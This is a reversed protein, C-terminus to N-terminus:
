KWLNMDSLVSMTIAAAMKGSAEKEGQINTAFFCTHGNAETFGIFWGNVDRGETRGTGTKGYFTQGESSFLCISKKVADVHEPAFDLRNQYLNKLLEVQEVPSIKLSSQLWCTSFDFHIEENGYGIQHIYRKVASRGMQEAMNQFYWNVSAGMASYLDQDANWADFPHPEKDWAMFSNEPTIIGESLGFLASYIKYTSNPSTRRTAHEMDYINWVDANLDYLVFSGKYGHFYSSLDVTSIVESSVDWHYRNQEAACTSLLPTFSLLLVSILCFSLSGKTIKRATPKQYSAIQRIRKQMQRMPGSIGVAFPFAVLSIKEALGLLTDGYKKYESERLLELVAADCAVERDARMEGLAYWVLPNFWYLIGALDMFYGALADRHRFHQLEHLLMYRLELRRCDSIVHIPLYICPRFFGAIVPSKLFATSYIPINATIHMEKLCHEYLNRVERNQLPLASQKLRRFRSSSRLMLLVMALIGAIWVAALVTGIASPMERGASLAFDQLPNMVASSDLVPINKTDIETRSSLLGRLRGSIWPFFQLLGSAPLPLFPVSLLVLMVYWLRYQMRSTLSGKLLYKLLFLLGILGCLFLNSILFRIMFDAM